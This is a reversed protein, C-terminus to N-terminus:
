DINKNFDSNSNNRDDTYIKGIDESNMCIYQINTDENEYASSQIFCYPFVTNITKHINQTYQDTFDRRGIVNVVFIGNKQLKTKINEIYQITSLHEPISNRSLFADLVIVDYIKNTKNIYSRGDEAIFNGNINEHLFFREAIDKIAPDIDVYTFNNNVGKSLVFGGAGIVLIDKNELKMKKFLVDDLLKIYGYKQGNILISSNSGNSKFVKSNNQPYRLVEYSAYQNTAVYNSKEFAINLKYLSFIIAVSLLTIWIKKQSLMLALIFLLSSAIVITYSVGLYKLIVNTTIIAGLFSGITSLFLVNGSIESVTDGKLKNTMLPITQGLFYTVPFVILICYIIMLTYATVFKSLAMFYSELFLFSLCFGAVTAAIIFNKILKDEIDPTKNGGVKYGIALAILFVGIIWSVVEVSNGVFPAMQKIYLMQYALSVFGEIFLVLAIQFTKNKLLM